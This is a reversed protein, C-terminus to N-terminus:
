RGHFIVIALPAKLGQKAKGFKPYGKVFRVEGKFCYDHWYGANTRVPLLCVVTAGKGSEEWAKKVWKKIQQGFPPNMWCIGKWEQSLGDDDATFFHTAKANKATAAVDLTFHFEDDLPKFLSDPTSWENTTSQFRKTIFVLNYVRLIVLPDLPHSLAM